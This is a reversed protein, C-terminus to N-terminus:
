TNSNKIDEEINSKNVIDIMYILLFPICIMIPIVYRVYANVPSLITTLFITYLPVLPLLERIKKCYVFIATFVVLIFFYTGCSYLIGIPTSRTAYSYKQITDGSDYFDKIRHIDFMGNDINEIYGFEFLAIGDKYEKKDPLVYGYTSNITAFVYCKPHKFFMKFWTFLYDRLEENTPDKYYYKVNDVTEYEFHSKVQEIDYVKSIANIEDETLENSYEYIYNATQQLPVSLVEKKSGKPINLAAALVNTIISSIIISSVCIAIVIKRMHGRLILAVFPITLIITHLGNHRFLLMLMLSLFLIIYDRKHLENEKISKILIFVLGLVGFSFPIDKVETYFHMGWVPLLCFFFIVILYVYLKNTKQYLYYTIRSIIVIATIVQLLCPLFIGLNVNNLLLALKMFLGYYITAVIPHHSTWEVNRFFQNIQYYSDMNLGGPYFNIIYPLYFLLMIIFLYVIPHSKFFDFLKSFLLSVKGKKKHEKPKNIDDNSNNDINTDDSQLKSFLLVLLHYILAFYGVFRVLSIFLQFSDYTILATGYYLMFSQGIVLVTTLFAGLVISFLITRKNSNRVTSYFYILVIFIFFPIIGFADEFSFEIKKFFLGLPRINNIFNIITPNLVVIENVEFISLTTIFALIVDIFNKLKKRKM